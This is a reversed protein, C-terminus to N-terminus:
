NWEDFEEVKKPFQAMGNCIHDYQDKTLLYVNDIMFKHNIIEDINKYGTKKAIAYLRNVQKVSLLREPIGDGEHGVDEFTSAAHAKQSAGTRINQLKNVQQTNQRPTQKPPQQARKPETAEKGHNNTSDADKTDDINLAANLAYKRAYSSAAGTIQSGDMGKKNEDERAYASFQLQETPNEPNIITVTAKIYYRDGILEVSDSIFLLLNEQALIPKLATLIDECSRYNYNGFKNRQGKPAKLAIQSNLLKQYINKKHQNTM